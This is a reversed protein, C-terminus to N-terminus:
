RPEISALHRGVALWSGLLGLAAGIFLLNCFGSLGLGGLSFGSGYLAALEQAPGALLLRAAEVLVAALLAGGVGYWLGEYLFPRRIFADTGGLLKVIVIEERRSLFDLRITNGVVLVVAVALLGAVVWIGRRLLEMLTHLRQIWARDLQVLEAEKLGRLREALAEIQEPALEPRPQVVIVAPLPNDELLALADDFGSGNRFEALAQEPTILTTEAIEGDRRLEDALATYREARIDKHIFVSIRPGGEWGGALTGVNSLLLLFGTPLALAIGIVGATLLSPLPARYLRGLAGVLARAHGGLLGRLWLRLRSPRGASAAM